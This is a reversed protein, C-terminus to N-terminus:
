CRNRANSKAFGYASRGKETDESKLALKWNRTELKVRRWCGTKKIPTPFLLGLIEKKLGILGKKKVRPM